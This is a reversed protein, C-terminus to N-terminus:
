LSALVALSNSGLVRVVVRGKAGGYLLERDERWGFLAAGSSLGDGFPNLEVVAMSGDIWAVDLVFSDMLLLDFIGQNAMETVFASVAHLMSFLDRQSAFIHMHDNVNAYPDYASICTLVRLHVFCRFECGNPFDSWPRLVISMSKDPDASDSHWRLFERVRDSAMLREIVQRPESTSLKLHEPPVSGKILDKPSCCSLRPFIHHVGPMEEIAARLGDEISTLAEPATASTPHIIANVELPSMRVIAAPATVPKGDATRMASLAGHWHEFNAAWVCAARCQEALDYACHQTLGNAAVSLNLSTVGDLTRKISAEPSMGRRELFPIVARECESPFELQTGDRVMFRGATGISNAEWVDVTRRSCEIGNEFTIEIVALVSDNNAVDNTRQRAKVPMEETQIPMEDLVARERKVSPHLLIITGSSFEVDRLPMANFIRQSKGEVSCADAILLQDAPLGLVKAAARKLQLGTTKPDVSLECQQEGDKIRVTIHMSMKEGPGPVVEQFSGGARDPERKSISQYPCINEIHDRPSFLSNEGRPKQPGAM